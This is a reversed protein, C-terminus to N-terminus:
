EKWFNYGKELASNGKLRRKENASSFISNWAHFFISLQGHASFFAIDLQFGKLRARNSTSTRNASTRLLAEKKFRGALNLSNKLRNATKRLAKINVKFKPLHHCHSCSERTSKLIESAMKDVDPWYRYCIIYTRKSDNAIYTPGLPM